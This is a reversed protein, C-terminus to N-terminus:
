QVFAKRNISEVNKAIYAPVIFYFDSQDSKIVVQDDQKYFEFRYSNDGSKLTFIYAPKSNTLKKVLEIDAVGVVQVHILYNILREIEPQDLKEKEGRDALLWKDEQKNLVFDSGTIQNVPMKPKLLGKDFWEQATAPALHLGFQVSYISADGAKRVYQKKYGPSKGLYLDAVQQGNSFLTIRRKYNNEAVQFRESAGATKAVPWKAHLKKLSEIFASWTGTNVPLNYYGPLVWGQGNRTLKVKNSGDDIIIKELRTDGLSTLTVNGRSSGTNGTNSSLLFIALVIQVLLIVSLIKINGLM